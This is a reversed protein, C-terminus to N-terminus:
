ESRIQIPLLSLTQGPLQWWRLLVAKRGIQYGTPLCQAQRSLLTLLSPTAGGKSRSQWKDYSRKSKELCSSSFLSSSPDRSWSNLSSKHNYPLWNELTLLSKGLSKGLHQELLNENYLSIMRLFILLHLLLKITMKLFYLFYHHFMLICICMSVAKFSKM